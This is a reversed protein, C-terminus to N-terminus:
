KQREEDVPFASVAKGISLTFVPDLGPNRDEILVNQCGPLTSEKRETDFDTQPLLEIQKLSSGMMFVAGTGIRCRFSFANFTSISFWYNDFVSFV